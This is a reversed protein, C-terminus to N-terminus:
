DIMSSFRSARCVYNKEWLIKDRKGLKKKWSFALLLLTKFTCRIYTLVSKARNKEISDPLYTYTLM